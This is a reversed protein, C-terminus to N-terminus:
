ARYLLTTLCGGRGAHVGPHGDQPWHGCYPCLGSQCSVRFQECLPCVHFILSKCQVFAKVCPCPKCSSCVPVHPVARRWTVGDQSVGGAELSSVAPVPVCGCVARGADLRDLLGCEPTGWCCRPRAGLCGALRGDPCGVLWPRSARAGFGHDGLSM